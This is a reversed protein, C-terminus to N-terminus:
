GGRRGGTGARSRNPKKGGRKTSRAAAAAAAAEAAAKDEEEQEKMTKGKGRIGFKKQVWLNALTRWNPGFSVVYRRLLRCSRKM